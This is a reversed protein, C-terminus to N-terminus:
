QTAGAAQLRVPISKSAPVKSSKAHHWLPVLPNLEPFYGAICGRPIDYAKLKLGDVVRDVGDDAVTCASVAEGEAFGLREIDAANILLVERTGSVGRFRDDLSYITTNFQNDGRMTMLTLVDAGRARMDPDEDLSEPVIFNARKTDTEWRRERPPLPRHFGGPTWMRANFDHYIEPYSAAIADRVLAYDDVWAQWDLAPNPPLTAMAIGAVIAPESRLTSAAPEVVGRSGHMCGVSDEMSVAQPGSKQRDIETRGLCPLLWASRGHVLHSRNLKTAIQVTMELERWAPEIRTRDPVARVFNGGLGVFAKVSGDIVGECAEVTNLGKDRPPEFAFQEAFRDLPALEPKETIGVTRQGQVNSHGRVPCVGAGPRGMNGRMLLLNVVMQVNEVGRRHQTLGMGYVGIVNQARCYEAAAAEIADRKLGSAREIASWSCARVWREFADFGHTHASIFAEDLVRAGGSRLALDDAALVAKCMGAIAAIDGGVRLQHYQTSITTAAGSLMQAPSLPDSFEVLGAERLPNFTVIPVGRQRARRLPHLMRPSNIGTNQGFFVFCDCRDFDDLMVTGVGVGISKPLGVSTSEHCMNSSDPLNNCGYMRAFLQYMYATELSARGSMYFVVSAPDLAKLRAGIEAFADEWTVQLYRDSGADWRLPVTLRGHAELEHDSWRELEALTHSEFFGADTRKATMEWATAKIGNECAEVSHPDAPKAWSCSVCAYGDPKNHHALVAKGAKLPVHERLLATSVERVSGWGGAM